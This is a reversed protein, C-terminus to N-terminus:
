GHGQCLKKEAIPIIINIPYNLIGSNILRVKTCSDSFFETEMVFSSTVKMPKEFRIETEIRKNNIIDVIEKAGKGSKESGTWSYIYGKTGDNGESLEIRESDARVWKNFKEQNKLFRLFNFVENQPANIIIERSVYHNRRMFIGSVLILTIVGIIVLLIVVIVKM